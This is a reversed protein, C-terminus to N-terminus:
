ISHLGGTQIRFKKQLLKHSMQEKKKIKMVLQFIVKTGVAREPVGRPNRPAAPPRRLAASQQVCVVRVCSTCAVMQGAISDEHSVLLWNYTVCRYMVAYSVTKSVTLNKPGSIFSLMLCLSGNIKHRTFSEQTSETM